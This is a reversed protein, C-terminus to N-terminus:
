PAAGHTASPDPECYAAGHGVSFTYWCRLGSRPAEIPTWTAARVGSAPPTAEVCAVILFTSGLCLLFVVPFIAHAAVGILFLRKSM